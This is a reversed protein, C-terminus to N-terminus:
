TILSGMLPGGPNIPRSLPLSPSPSLPFTEKGQLPHFLLIQMGKSNLTPHMFILYFRGEFASWVSFDLVCSGSWIHEKRGGREGRHLTLSIVCGQWFGSASKIQELPSSRYQRVYLLINGDNSIVSVSHIM